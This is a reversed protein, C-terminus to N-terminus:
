FSINANYALRFIIANAIQRLTWIYKAHNGADKKHYFWILGYKVNNLFIKTSPNIFTFQPKIESKWLLYATCNTNKFLLATTICIKPSCLAGYTISRSELMLYRLKGLFRIKIFSKTLWIAARFSSQTLKWNKGICFLWKSFISFELCTKHILLFCFAAM